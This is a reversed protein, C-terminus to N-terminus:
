GNLKEKLEGLESIARMCDDIHENCRGIMTDILKKTKNTTDGQECHYIGGYPGADIYESCERDHPQKVVTIAFGGKLKPEIKITEIFM